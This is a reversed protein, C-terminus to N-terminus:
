CRTVLGGGSILRCLKRAPQAMAAPDTPPLNPADVFHLFWIAVVALAVLLGRVINSRVTFFLLLTLVAIAGVELRWFTRWTYDRFNPAAIAARDPAQAVPFDDMMTGPQAHARIEADTWRLALYPFKDRFKKDNTTARPFQRSEAYALELLLTEGAEALTESVDDDLQRGNPFSAPKRLDYIMVDPASDYHRHAFLPSVFTAFLDNEISPRDHVGMIAQVQESPLKDNLYGFRPLQTRLSRGVHDIQKGRHTTAWLLIPGNRADAPLLSLPISIVIGVVNRRFFRPFIFPDDFVGTQINIAGTKWDRKQIRVVGNIIKEESVINVDGPIGEIRYNALISQSNEGDPVLDLEFELVANEAIADPHTIIGGYLAQMSRDTQQESILAGPRAGAAQLAAEYNEGTRTKTEDFFRVSPDLDLHVRFKYGKLQLASIQQPQLARRVSLSIILQDGEGIRNADRIPVGNRDVVFAHLDTINAEPSEQVAFVNISMPDAHDSARAPLLAAGLLLTAVFFLPRQFAPHTKMLPILPHSAARNAPWARPLKGMPHRRFGSRLNAAAPISNNLRAYNVIDETLGSRLSPKLLLIWSHDGSGDYTVRALASHYKGDRRIDRLAGLEDPDIWDQIWPPPVAAPFAAWGDARTAGGAPTPDLWVIEAGFDQRVQQTLLAVDGWQYEPDEGADTVIMFPVRRRLLEYLGTVEFHGGDSLYWFWRSPGHFRARWESLLMSQMRFLTVPFRKIKRWLPLPYRGPREHYLIGSDWWYGLRVNALGLFLSLPLKTGRGIGTSFAAGSIATWIGLSLSEVEASESGTTKLVHFANPDNPFPLAKLATLRRKEVAKEDEADLGERWRRRKQWRPLADPPTWEAFYRSGVSVGHPTVCMPLGKRERVQRDSAVDVTENVCVNILHLPGGQQEPHYEDYPLDDKPHAVQVDRSLNNTASYIREENSAGQFTRALRM